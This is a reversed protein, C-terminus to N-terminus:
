TNTNFRNVPLRTQKNQTMLGLALISFRSDHMRLYNGYTPVDQFSLLYRYLYKIKM